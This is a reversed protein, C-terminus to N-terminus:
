KLEDFQKQLDAIRDNISNIIYDTDEKDTAALSNTDFKSNLANIPETRTIGFVAAEIKVGFPKGEFCSLMYKKTFELFYIRHELEKAKAFTEQTM